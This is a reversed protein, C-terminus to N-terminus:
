YRKFTVLCKHKLFLLFRRERSLRAQLEALLGDKWFRNLWRELIQCSLDNILRILYIDPNLVGGYEWHPARIYSPVGPSLLLHWEGLLPMIPPAGGLYVEKAIGM